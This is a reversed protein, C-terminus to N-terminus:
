SLMQSLRQWRASVLCCMFHLRFRATTFREGAAESQHIIAPTNNSIRYSFAILAAEDGFGYRGSGRGAEPGYNEILRRWPLYWSGSARWNVVPAIWESIVEPHLWHSRVKTLGSNTAAATVVRFKVLKRSVWSRITPVAWFKDPLSRVRSESGIFDTVVIIEGASASKARLRDPGPHNM